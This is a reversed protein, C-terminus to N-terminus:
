IVAIDIGETGCRMLLQGLSTGIEVRHGKEPLPIGLDALIDPVSRTIRRVFQRREVLEGTIPDVVEVVRVLASTQGCAKLYEGISKSTESESEPPEEAMPPEVAPGCEGDDGAEDEDDRSAPRGSQPWFGRSTGYRHVSRLAEALLWSPYGHEPHKILYKCAYCAAHMANAFKPASFRVAGFGPRDGEVPAAWEPRFSNWAECITAFPIFSADLLLHFHPMESVKQWEVVYFYRRSHLMGLRHLKRVLLAVCRRDRVYRYAHAPSEFLSPDLTLTLMLLGQFTELVPLLRRRLRLGQVTCCRSCFWSRCGCSVLEYRPAQQETERDCHKRTSELYGGSGAAVRERFSWFSRSRDM